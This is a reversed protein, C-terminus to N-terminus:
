KHKVINECECAKMLAIEEQIKLLFAPKKNNIIRVALHNEGNDYKSKAEYVKCM